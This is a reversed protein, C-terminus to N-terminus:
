YAKVIEGFYLMHYDDDGYFNKVLDETLSEKDLLQKFLIKCEFYKGCGEVVPATVESSEKYKIWGEAEKDFERGSKSGCLGLAEKLNGDYPISITFNDSKELISYTYRSLRVLTMFVPRRHMYGISGWSITMTNAKGDAKATLFAGKKYLNDLANELDETFENQM